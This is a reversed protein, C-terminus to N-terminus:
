SALQSEDDIPCLSCTLIFYASSTASVECQNNEVPGAVAFCSADFQYM